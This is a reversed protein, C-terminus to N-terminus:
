KELPKPVNRPNRKITGLTGVREIRCHEIFYVMRKVLNFGVPIDARHDHAPLTM